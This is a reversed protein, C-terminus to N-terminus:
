SSAYGLYHLTTNTYSSVIYGTVTGLPTTSGSSGAVMVYRQSSLTCYRATYSQWSATDEGVILSDFSGVYGSVTGEATIDQDVTIEECTVSGCTIAETEFATLLGDIDITDASIKVNTGGDDNISAIISAAKIYGQGNRLGVVMGILQKQQIFDSDFWEEQEEYNDQGRGGGGGGSKKEERNIYIINPIYAGIEPRTNNPNVLDVNLKIIELNFLQGTQRIEVIALDHLQMPVDPLGLRKLETVTGSITIKPDSTAKLAEWTKQLLISADKISANQYYGFRARGNRGYLATKAPDELYKQNLPKAPHDSTATWEVDAFTLAEETDDQGSHAVNVSGGYGYLATLVESDDIVVTSDSMNKDVSLRVGRWTPEAPTIDLYRGTIAGAASFTVRPTIYANWNKAIENVADWVSGRPIDVSSLASVTSNGVAWLTGTLVTTLANAPTQDTIKSTTCHEDSLEAVVIHEAIIKQIHEPETNTCNRIEFVETGGTAPNTFSIRMGREIVKGPNYPFMANVTYEEQTWDGQVMDDRVFLVTGAANLFTYQM